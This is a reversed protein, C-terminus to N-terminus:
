MYMLFLSFTCPFHVDIVTDLYVTQYIQPLLHKILWKFIKQHLRNLKSARNQKTICADYIYWSIGFMHHIYLWSLLIQLYMQTFCPPINQGRINWKETFCKNVINSNRNGPTKTTMTILMIQKCFKPLKCLQWFLSNAAMSATVTKKESHLM